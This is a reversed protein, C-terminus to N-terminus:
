NNKKIRNNKKEDIIRGGMYVMGSRDMLKLMIKREKVKTQMDANLLDGDCHSVTTVKEAILEKVYNDRANAHKNKSFTGDHTQLYITSLNDQKISPIDKSDMGLARCLSIMFVVYTGAECLSVGECETPSLVTVKIKYSRAHVVGSGVSVMIGGQGKGDKYLRHSSDAGVRIGFRCDKRFLIAWDGSCEIYRLVRCAAKYHKVTPRSSKTALYSVAFLIEYRSLRALYMLAIVISLYHSKDKYEEEDDDDDVLSGVAPTEVVSKITDIDARYKFIIEKRYGKQSVLINGRRDTEIYLSIYSIKDGRDSVIEYYKKLDSEFEDIDNDTGTVLIDDVHTGASIRCNKEKGEKVWVCGDVKLRKFGMKKFTNALHNAFHAAAQPLGYLYKRLKFHMCGDAEVYESLHPYEKVFLGAVEKDVKM